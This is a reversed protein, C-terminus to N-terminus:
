GLLHRSLNVVDILRIYYPYRGIPLYFEGLAIREVGAYHYLSTRNKVEHVFRFNVWQFKM